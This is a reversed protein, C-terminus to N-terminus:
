LYKQWEQFIVINESNVDSCEAFNLEMARGDKQPKFKRLVDFNGSLLILSNRKRIEVKM